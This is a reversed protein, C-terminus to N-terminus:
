YTYEKLFDPFILLTEKAILAKMKEFSLRHEETWKWKIKRIDLHILTGTATLM